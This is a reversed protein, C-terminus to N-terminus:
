SLTKATKKKLKKKAVALTTGLIQVPNSGTVDM